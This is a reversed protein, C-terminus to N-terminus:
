YAWALTKLLSNTSVAAQSELMEQIQGEELGSEKLVMKTHEGLMPAAERPRLPSGHFTLPSKACQYKGFLLHNPEPALCEQLVRPDQQAEFVTLLKEPTSM